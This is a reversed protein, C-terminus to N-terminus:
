VRFSFSKEQEILFFFAGLTLLLYSDTLMEFPFRTLGKEAIVTLSLQM